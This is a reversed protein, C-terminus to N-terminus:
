IKITRDYQYHKKGVNSLEILYDIDDETLSIEKIRRLYKIGKDVDGKFKKNVFRLEGYVLNRKM